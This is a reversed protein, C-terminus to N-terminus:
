DGVMYGVAFWAGAGLVCDILIVAILLRGWGSREIIARAFSFGSVVKGSQYAFM